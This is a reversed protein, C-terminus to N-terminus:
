KHERKGSGRRTHMLPVSVTVPTAEVAGFDSALLDSFFLKLRARLDAPDGAQELFLLKCRRRLEARGMKELEAASPPQPAPMEDFADVSAPATSPLAAKLDKLPPLRMLARTRRLTRSAKRRKKRMELRRGSRPNLEPM